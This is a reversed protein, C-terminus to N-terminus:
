PSNRNQKSNLLIATLVYNEEIFFFGKGRNSINKSKLLENNLVFAFEGKEFNLDYIQAEHFGFYKQVFPYFCKYVTEKMSFILTLYLNERKLNLLEFEEPLLIKKEIKKLQKFRDRREIDVGVSLYTSKKGVLSCALSSTHSISGVIQDPWLPIGKQTQALNMKESHGLSEFSKLACYRGALFERRRKEPFSSLDYSHYLSEIKRNKIEVSYFALDDFQNFFNNHM